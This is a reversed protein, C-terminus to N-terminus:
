SNFAANANTHYCISDFADMGEPYERCGNKDMFFGSWALDKMQDTADPDNKVCDSSGLFGIKTACNAITQTLEYHEVALLPKTYTKKM